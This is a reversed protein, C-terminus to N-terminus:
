EEIIDVFKTIAQHKTRAFDRVVRFLIQETSLAVDYVRISKLSVIAGTSGKFIIDKNSIYNDGEVVNIAGSIVGNIYIFTLGKNTGRNPNVVISM